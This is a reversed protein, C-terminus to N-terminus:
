VVNSTGSSGTIAKGVGVSVGVNAGVASFIGEVSLCVGVTSAEKDFGIIKVPIEFLVGAIGNNILATTVETNIVIM